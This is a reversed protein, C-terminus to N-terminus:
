GAIQWTMLEGIRNIPHGKAIRALSMGYGLLGAM